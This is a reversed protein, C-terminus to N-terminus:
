WREMELGEREAGETEGEQDTKNNFCLSYSLTIKQPCKLKAPL